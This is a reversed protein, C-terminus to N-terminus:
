NQATGIGLGPGLRARRRYLIVLALGVVAGTIIPTWLRDGLTAEGRARRAFQLTALWRRFEPLRADFDAARCRCSLSIQKGGTAASVDLSRLADRGPDGGVPVSTRLCEIAPYKGFGVEVRQVDSVEYRMGLAEGATRWKAQLGATLDADATVWEGDQEVVAVHVGDFDRRLWRDVPGLVYFSAPETRQVDVPLLDRLRRSEDPSVQRFDAPLDIHYLTSRSVFRQMGAAPAPPQQPPLAQAATATTLLLLCAVARLPPM